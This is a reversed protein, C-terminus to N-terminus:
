VYALTAGALSKIIRGEDKMREIEDGAGDWSANFVFGGAFITKRLRAMIGPIM